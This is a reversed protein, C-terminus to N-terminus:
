VSGTATGGYYGPRAVDHLSSAPSSTQSRATAQEDNDNDNNLQIRKHVKRSEASWDLMGIYGLQAVTVMIHGVATGTWLMALSCEIWGSTIALYGLPGVFVFYTVFMSTATIRQYGLGALTGTGLASFMNTVQTIAFIPIVDAVAQAVLRDGTFLYPYSGRLTVLAFPISLAITMAVTGGAAIVRRTNVLTGSGIANGVRNATVIQIAYGFAFMTLHTRLLIAQAALETKGLYSTVLITIEQVCANCCQVFCSPLYLRMLPDWDKFVAQRSLCCTSPWGEYGRNYASYIVLSGLILMSTLTLAASVGSIGFTFPGGYVLMYNFLVNFPLSIIMAYTLASMVGQAELFVQLFTYVGLAIFGPFQYYLYLQAQHVIEIDKQVYGLFNSATYWAIALPICMVAFIVLGRQLHIGTTSKDKAATWSQACLTSIASELAYISIYITANEITQALSIAALATSGLHGAAYIIIWRAPQQLLNAIIIPTSNQIFRFLHVTYPEVLAATRLATETKNNDGQQFLEEPSLLHTDEDLQHQESAQDADTVHDNYRQKHIHYATTPSTM